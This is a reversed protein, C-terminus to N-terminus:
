LLPTTIYFLLLSEFRYFTSLTTKRKIKDKYDVPKHQAIKKVKRM